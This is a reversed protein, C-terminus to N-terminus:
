GENIVETQYGEGGSKSVELDFAPGSRSHSASACAPSRPGPRPATRDAASDVLNTPTGRSRCGGAFEFVTSSGGNAKTPLGIAIASLMETMTGKVPTGLKTFSLDRQASISATYRCRLRPIMLLAFIGHELVCRDLRHSSTAGRATRIPLRHLYQDPPEISALLEAHITRHEARLLSRPSASSRM